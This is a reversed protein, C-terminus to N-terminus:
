RSRPSGARALPRAPSRRASAPSAGSAFPRARPSGPRPRPPRRQPPCRGAGPGRPRRRPARRRRSTLVRSGRERRAAVTPAHQVVDDQGTVADAEDGQGDPVRGRQQRQEVVRQPSPHRGRRRAGDGVDLPVRTGRQVGRVPVREGDQVAFAYRAPCGQGTRPYGEVDAVTRPTPTTMGAWLADDLLPLLAPAHGITLSVLRVGHGALVIDHLVRRGYRGSTLPAAPNEGAPPPSCRPPSWASRAGTTTWWLTTRGPRPRPPRRQPPCRGAGPGRPRRRPARRRRSTLVRSGRERRAAVTPAHQVVDDQGTVADAEDGQGDLVRGRQQRQEVVHQPGPHRGRRRAVDGIDLPVQTGTLPTWRPVCTGRSM